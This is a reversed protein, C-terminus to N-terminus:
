HHVTFARAENCHPLFTGRASRAGIPNNKCSYCQCGIRHTHTHTHAADKLERFLHLLFSSLRLYNKMVNKKLLLYDRLAIKNCCFHYVLIKICVHARWIQLLTLFVQMTRLLHLSVQMHAVEKNHVDHLNRAVFINWAFRVTRARSARCLQLMVKSPSELSTWVLNANLQIQLPQLLKM